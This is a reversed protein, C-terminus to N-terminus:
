GPPTCPSTPPPPAWPTSNDRGPPVQEVAVLMLPESGMVRGEHWQDIAEVVIQGATFHHEVRPNYTTVRLHGAQVYVYRPYSHKHCAIVHGPAYTVQTVLLQFPTPPRALAQRTITHDYRTQVPDAPAPAPAPATAAENRDPAAPQTSCAAALTATAAAIMRWAM